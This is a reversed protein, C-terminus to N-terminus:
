PSAVGLDRVRSRGSMPSPVQWKSSRAQDAEEKRKETEAAEAVGMLGANDEWGRRAEEEMEILHVPM